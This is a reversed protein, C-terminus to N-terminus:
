QGVPNLGQEQIQQVVVALRPLMDNLVTNIGNRIVSGPCLFFGNNLKPLM